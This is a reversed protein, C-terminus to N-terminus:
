DRGVSGVGVPHRRRGAAGRGLHTRRAGPEPAWPLPQLAPPPRAPIQAGVAAGGGKGARPWRNKPTGGPPASGARRARTRCSRGPRLSGSRPSAPRPCPAPYTVKDRRRGEGPASVFLLASLGSRPSGAAAAAAWPGPAGGALGGTRPGRGEEEEEEAAAEETAAAPTRRAGRLGRRAAGAGEWAPPAPGPLPARLWGRLMCQPTPKAEDLGHTTSRLQFWLTEKKPQSPSSQQGCSRIQEVFEQDNPSGSLAGCLPASLPVQSPCPQRSPPRQGSAKGLPM